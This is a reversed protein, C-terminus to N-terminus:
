VAQVNPNPHVPYLVQVDENDEVLTRVARCIERVPEGFNERRHATVLILRKSDDLEIGIEPLKGIVSHLADIM